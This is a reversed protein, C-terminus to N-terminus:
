GAPDGGDDRGDDIWEKERKPLTFWITTGGGESSELGVRGGHREVIRKVLALGIGTGPYEARTHLRQFIMFVRDRYEPAVGIGNDRVRIEWSQGRDATSVHIRPTDRGRFKIANSLLNQFVSRIQQEDCATTPLEDHTVIAGAERISWDLNARAQGLAANLDTPAFALGRTQVRSYALLDNILQQMRTAGDVAYGIFARADEDLANQYRRELLQTYSSVMRLPEQLDHSAVYAFQELELNSRQLEDISRQLEREIRKRETIDRAIELRVARGDPWDIPQDSVLFDRTLRTNRIERTGGWASAAGDSVASCGECTAEFGHLARHCVEGVPDEGLAQRVAQNVFLIEFSDPDVVYLLDPLNELVTVFQEWQEAREREAAERRVIEVNLEDRSATIEQLREAMRNFGAALRGIEDWTRVAVRHTLNGRGLEEAAGVVCRIPGTLSRALLVGITAALAGFGVGFGVVVNRLHVIPAFAEGTDIESLIALERDPIWRYAGLVEVGRYDEYVAVGSQGALAREAGFTRAERRLAYGDGFRPETVFHGSRNVLYTDESRSAAWGHTMIESIVSLDLHGALVAVPVGNRDVIPTAVTIRVQQDPLAYYANETHTGRRGHEFFATDKRHEGEQSRETSVLVEGDDPHLVFIEVFGGERVSPALHEEIIREHLVEHEPAGARHAAIWDIMGDRLFPRQALLFLKEENGSLWRQLDSEKLENSSVLHQSTVREIAGRGNWYSFLGLVVIPAAVCLVLVISLKGSLRM